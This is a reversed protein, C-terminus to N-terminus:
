QSPIRPATQTSARPPKTRKEQIDYHDLIHGEAPINVDREARNNQDAPSRKTRPTENAKPHSVIIAKSYDLWLPRALRPSHAPPATTKTRLRSQRLIEGGPPRSKARLSSVTGLPAYSRKSLDRPQDCALASDVMVDNEFRNHIRAFATIKPPCFSLSTSERALSENGSPTTAVYDM